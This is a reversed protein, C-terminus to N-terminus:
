RDCLSCDYVRKAFTPQWVGSGTECTRNWSLQAFSGKHPIKLAVFNPHEAKAVRLLGRSWLEFVCHWLEWFMQTEWDVVVSWKPLPGPPRDQTWEVNEQAGLCKLWGSCTALTLISYGQKGWCISALNNFNFCTKEQANKLLHCFHTKLQNAGAGFDLLDLEWFCQTEMVFGFGGARLSVVVEVPFCRFFFFFCPMEIPNERMAFHREWREKLM